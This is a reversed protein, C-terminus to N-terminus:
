ACLKTMRSAIQLLERSYRLKEPAILERAVAGDAAEHQRSRHELTLMIQRALAHLMKQQFESLSRPRCDM